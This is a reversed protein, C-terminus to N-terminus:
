IVRFMTGRCTFASREGPDADEGLRRAARGM